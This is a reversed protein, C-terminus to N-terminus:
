SALARGDPPAGVAALVPRVDAGIVAEGLAGDADRAHADGARVRLHDVGDDLGLLATDEPRAVAPVAPLAGVALALEALAGPVVRPQDRIGGILVGDVHHVHAEVPGGVAALGELADGRGVSVVVVQPNGRAVRRPHDLGVVAAGVHAHVAAGGPGVLVHLGGRLHVPDGHVRGERVPEQATLLVVGRHPDPGAGQIAAGDAHAVPLGSSAALAAVDGGVGRVGVEDEAAGVAAVQGHPVVARALAAVHRHPRVVGHAGAGLAHAVPELPVEGQEERGVPVQVHRGALLPAGREVRGGVHEEAGGVQALAPLLDARVQGAVVRRPEDGRTARDSFVVGPNLVVARDEGGELVRELLADQPATGVVASDVHAHVVARVPLVHSGAREGFPGLDVVENGVGERRAPRVERARAVLEVVEPRVEEVGGVEAAGPLVERAADLAVVEHARDLGVGLPAAQEERAGLAPEVDRELIPHAPIRQLQVQGHDRDRVEGHGLAVEHDRGLPPAEPDEVLQRWKTLEVHRRM